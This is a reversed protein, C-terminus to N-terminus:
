YKEDEECGTRVGIYELVARLGLKNMCYTHQKPHTKSMKQFRNEGKELHAGFMCFMCGTREYGMDYITSYKVSNEHIYKKVDENTWYYIPHSVPRKSSFENCKHIGTKRLGSEEARSGTMVKRGTMKEYLAFPKKKFEHCCRDTIKFPADIMFLWKRPLKGNGNNRGNLRINLLKESKTTRIERIKQANEKSIVPYGDSLIVDRFTRSPKLWDINEITKVFNRIEPFELGTDAFAGKIDPYM